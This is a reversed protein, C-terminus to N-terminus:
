KGYYGLEKYNNWMSKQGTYRCTSCVFYDEGTFKSELKGLEHGCGNPCPYTEKKPEEVYYGARALREHYDRDLRNQSSALLEKCFEVNNEIAEELMEYFLEVQEKTYSKM